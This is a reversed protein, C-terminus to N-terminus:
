ARLQRATLRRRFEHLDEIKLGGFRETRVTGGVRSARASSTISYASLSGISDAIWTM